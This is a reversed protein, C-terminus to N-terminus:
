VFTAAKTRSQSFLVLKLVYLKNEHILATGLKRQLISGNDILFCFSYTRKGLLIPRTFIYIVRQTPVSGKNFVSKSEFSVPDRHMKSTGAKHAHDALARSLRCGKCVKRVNVLVFHILQSCVM